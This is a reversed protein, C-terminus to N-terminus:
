LNSVILPVKGSARVIPSEAKKTHIKYSEGLLHYLDNRLNAAQDEHKGVGPVYRICISDLSEQIFQCAKFTKDRLLPSLIRPTILNGEKTILYDSERTITPIVIPYKRGCPCDQDEAWMGRDGIKYKIFPMATQYFGTWLFDGEVGPPVPKGDNDIIELIGFDSLQHMRGHECELILGAEETMGYSDYVKCLFAQEIKERMSSVLQEGTTVVFKMKFSEGSNLIIDALINLSTPFGEVILGQNNKLFDIYFKENTQNLHFISLLHQHEFYNTRWLKRGRYNLPVIKAGFLSIRWDRIDADAWIYQRQQHIWFAMNSYKDTVVKLGSGTTGSTYNVIMDKKNLKTNIMREHNDRVMERTLVFPISLFDSLSNIEKPLIDEKDFLDKWYPNNVKANILIKKLRMVQFKELEDRSFSDHEKLEELLHWASPQYRIKTLVLGRLSVIINQIWIPLKNYYKLFKNLRLRIWAEATGIM